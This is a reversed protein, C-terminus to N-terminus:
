RRGHCNMCDDGNPHTKPRPSPGDPGHCSLCAAPSEFSAHAADGPLLPPQRSSLTLWAVLAAAALVIALGVLQKRTM